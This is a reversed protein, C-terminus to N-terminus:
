ILDKGMMVDSFRYLTKLFSKAQKSVDDWGETAEDLYNPMYMCAETAVTDEKSFGISHRLAMTEFDNDCHPMLPLVKTPKYVYYFVKLLSVAATLVEAYANSLMKILFDQCLYCTDYLGVVMSLNARNKVWNALWKKPTTGNLDLSFLDFCTTYKKGDYSADDYVVTLAGGSLTQSEMLRRRKGIEGFSQACAKINDCFDVYNNESSWVLWRDGCDECDTGPECYGFKGNPTMFESGPGGDDCNGDSLMFTNACLEECVLAPPCKDFQYAPVTGKTYAIMGTYTLDGSAWCAFLASYVNYITSSAKATGYGYPYQKRGAHAYQYYYKKKAAHEKAAQYYDFAGDFYSNSSYCSYCEMSFLMSTRSDYEQNYRYYDGFMGALSGDGYKEAEAAADKLFLLSSLMGALYTADYLSFGSSYGKYCHMFKGSLAEKLFIMSDAGMISDVELNSIITFRENALTDMKDAYLKALHIKQVYATKTNLYFGQQTACPWSHQSTIKFLEYSWTTPMFAISSYFHHTTNTISDLHYYLGDFLDKCDSMCFKDYIKRPAPIVTEEGCNKGM